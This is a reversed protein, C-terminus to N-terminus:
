ILGFISKLERNKTNINRLVKLVYIRDKIGLENLGVM